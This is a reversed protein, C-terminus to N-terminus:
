ILLFDKMINSGSNIIDHEIDGLLKTIPATVRKLRMIQNEIKQIKEVYSAVPNFSMVSNNLRQQYNQIHVDSGARLIILDENLAAIRAVNDRYSFLCKEVHRFRDSYGM